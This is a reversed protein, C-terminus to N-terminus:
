QPLPVTTHSGDSFSVGSDSIATITRGGFRDGAHVIRVAGSESVLAYAREGVVTGLIGDAQQERQPAVSQGSSAGPANPAVQPQASGDPAFAQPNGAQAQQDASGYADAAAGGDPVFPNRQLVIPPPQQPPPYAPAATESSSTGTAIATQPQQAFASSVADPMFAVTALTAAAAILCFSLGYAPLKM